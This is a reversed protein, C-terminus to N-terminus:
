VWTLYCLAFMVHSVGCTVLITVSGLRVIPCCTVGCGLAVLGDVVVAVM